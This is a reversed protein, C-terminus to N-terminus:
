LRQTTAMAATAAIARDSMANLTIALLTSSTVPM